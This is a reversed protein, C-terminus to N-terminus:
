FLGDDCDLDCDYDYDDYADDEADSKEPKLLIQSFAGVIVIAIVALSITEFIRKIM